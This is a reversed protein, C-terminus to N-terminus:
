GVFLTEAKKMLEQTKEPEIDIVFQYTLDHIDVPNEDNPIRDILSVSQLEKLSRDLQEGRIGSLLEVQEFTPDPSYNSLIAISLLVQKAKPTLHKYLDDFLFNAIGTNQSISNVIESVVEIPLQQRGWFTRKTRQQILAVALNVILPNGEAFRLLDEQDNKDLHIGRESLKHQFLTKSDQMTLPGLKLPALGVINNYTLERRTTLLVVSPPPIREAFRLLFRWDKWSDLDDIVLLIRRSKLWALTAEYLQDDNWSLSYNYDPSMSVRLITRYLDELTKVFIGQRKRQTKRGVSRVYGKRLRGSVVGLEFEKATTWVISDFAQFGRLRRAFENAFATKGVGAEGWVSFHRLHREFLYEELVKMEEFRNVFDNTPEPLNDNYGFPQNTDTQFM